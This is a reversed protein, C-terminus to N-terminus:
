FIYSKNKNFYTNYIKNVQTSVNPRDWMNGLINLDLSIFFKLSIYIYSAYCSSFDTAFIAYQSKLFAEDFCNRICNFFFIIYLNLFHVPENRM